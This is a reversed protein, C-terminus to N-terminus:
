IIELTVEKNSIYKSKHQHFLNVLERVYTEHLNKIEEETPNEIKNKIEIPKGVVTTLPTRKWVVIITKVCFVINIYTEYFIRKWFSIKLLSQSLERKMKTSSDVETAYACVDVPYIESEGFTFVPVLDSGTKLAMKVFGYRNKLKLKIHDPHTTRMEAVGGVIIAAAKKKLNKYLFKM